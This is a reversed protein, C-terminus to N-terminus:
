IKYMKTFNFLIIIIITLLIRMLSL